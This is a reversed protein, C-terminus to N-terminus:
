VRDPPDVGDYYDGLSKIWHKLTVFPYDSWMLSLACFAVFALLPWNKRLVQAVAKMRFILVVIAAVELVAYM